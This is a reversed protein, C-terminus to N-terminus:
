RHRPGAAAKVGRVCQSCVCCEAAACVKAHTAGEGLLHSLDRDHLAVLQLDATLSADVEVCDAGAALAAAYAARTNPPHAASDGGHACVHLQQQQEQQQPPGETISCQEVGRLALGLPHQQKAQARRLLLGRRACQLLQTRGARVSAGISGRLAAHL